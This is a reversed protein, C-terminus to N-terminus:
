LIQYQFYCKACNIVDYYSNHPNEMEMGFLKRYLEELKPWKYQGRRMPYLKCYDATEKMTCCIKMSPVEIKMNARYLESMVVEKDFDINHCVLKSCCNEIDHKYEALVAEIDVGEAVAREYTIGHNKESGKLGWGNPKIIYDKVKVQEGTETYLGWSFQVIRPFLHLNYADAKADYQGKLGNTEVDLVIIYKENVPEPASTTETTTSKDEIDSQTEASTISELKQTASAMLQLVDQIVTKDDPKAAAARKSRCTDCTKYPQGKKNISFYKLEQESKCKSCKQLNAM